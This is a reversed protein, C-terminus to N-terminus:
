GCRLGSRPAPAALHRHRDQELGDAQIGLLDEGGEEHVVVEAQHVRARLHLEDGVADAAFDRAEVDGVLVAVDDDLLVLADRGAVHAGELLGLRLEDAHRFVEQKGAHQRAVDDVGVGALDDGLGVLLEGFRQQLLQTSGADLLDRAQVRVLEIFAGVDALRQAGVLGGVLEGRADRDVAHHPYHWTTLIKLTRFRYALAAVSVTWYKKLKILDEVSPLRRANALVSGRPMLFASAFANAEREAQQGQPAGHRHLVLHALEHAADFRSHETSKRTNLFVFPTNDRWMSFADVEAADIALSFVRVGHSELLHIMNKIPLEGLDWYRRLAMAAAEPSTERGLDPINAAPLRFREEIWKNLLLAFAGAGLASDRQGATRRSLARFSASDPSLEEIDPGSFYAAPFKLVKALQQLKETDPSFEGNEYASVSRPDVEIMEALAVRTLGRRKRALTLRSPNFTEVQSM